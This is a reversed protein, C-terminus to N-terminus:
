ALHAFRNLKRSIEARAKKTLFHGPIHFLFSAFGRHGFKNRDFSAIFARLANFSERDFAWLARGRYDIQFFADDPWKLRHKRRTKCFACSLTGFPFSGHGFFGASEKSAPLREEPIKKIGGYGRHPHYYIAGDYKGGWPLKTSRHKFAWHKRFVPNKPKQKLAIFHAFDFDAASECNPCKLALTDPFHHWHYVSTM